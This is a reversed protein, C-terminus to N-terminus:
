LPELKHGPNEEPCAGPDIKRLLRYAERMTETDASPGKM